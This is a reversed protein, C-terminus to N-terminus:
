TIDMEMEMERGQGHEREAHREQQAERSASAVQVSQQETAYEASRDQTQSQGGLERAELAAMRENFDARSMTEERVPTLGESLSAVMSSDLQAAFRDGAALQKDTFQFMPSHPDEKFAEGLSVKFLEAAKSKVETATPAPAARGATQTDHSPSAIEHLATLAKMDPSRNYEAMARPDWESMVLKGSRGAEIVADRIAEPTAGYGLKDAIERGVRNNHLDMGIDRANAGGNSNERTAAALAEWARGAANAVPASYAQATRASAYAHRFADEGMHSRNGEGYGKGMPENPSLLGTKLAQSYMTEAESHIKGFTVAHREWTAGVVAKAKDFFKNPM